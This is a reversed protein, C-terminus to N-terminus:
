ANQGNSNSWYPLSPQEDITRDVLILQGGPQLSTRFLKIWNPEENVTAENEIRDVTISEYRTEYLYSQLGAIVLLKLNLHRGMEEAREIIHERTLCQIEVNLDSSFIRLDLLVSELQPMRSWSLRLSASRDNDLLTDLTELNFGQMHLPMVMNTSDVDAVNLPSHIAIHRLDTYIPADKWPSMQKRCPGEDDFPLIDQMRDGRLPFRRRALALPSVSSSDMFSKLGLQFVHTNGQYFEKSVEKYGWKDATALGVDFRKRPLLIHDNEDHGYNFSLKGKESKTGRTYTVIRTIELAKELKPNQRKCINWDPVLIDLACCPDMEVAQSIVMSYVELPLRLLNESRQTECRHKINENSQTGYAGHVQQDM